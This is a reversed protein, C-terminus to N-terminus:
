SILDSMAIVNCLPQSFVECARYSLAMVKNLDEYLDDVKGGECHLNMAEVM